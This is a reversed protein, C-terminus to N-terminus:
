SNDAKICEVRLCPEDKSHYDQPEKEEIDKFGAEGLVEKLRKFNYGFQHTDGPFRQLGFINNIRKENGQVYEKVAEDFDPCEIILRGGIVLVRHWEKLAEPLDHRGLHEIVHYTTILEVSNNPYPLKKVDCVLDTARTKRFDINIHDKFCEEGCGLHLKVPKKGKVGIRYEWRLICPSVARRILNLLNRCKARVQLLKEYINSGLLEDWLIVSKKPCRRVM